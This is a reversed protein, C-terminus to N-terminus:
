SRGLTSGTSIGASIGVASRADPGWVRPSGTAGTTSGTRRGTDRIARHQSDRRRWRPPSLEPDTLETSCFSSNSSSSSSERDRDCPEVCLENPGPLRSPLLAGTTVKPNVGSLLYPPLPSSMDSCYMATVLCSFLRRRLRIAHLRHPFLFHSLLSAQM